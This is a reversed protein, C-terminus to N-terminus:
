WGAPGPLLPTPVEVAGAARLLTLVIGATGIMLGPVEGAGPVGCPWGADARERQELILAAVRRAARAHDAVGLARAAVLLLEVAGGLGHCATCDTTAGTRLATGARVVADRAAQLAATAEALALREETLAFLRLRSLGIGLAGHCWAAMSGPPEGADDFSRLDPWAVRDVDFWGREFELADACAAAARADGTVAAAEALALAIGAAGHGLGLLPPGGETPWASGWAQPVAAAALRAAGAALVPAPPAGGVASATGQLGLLTGAAGAILDLGDDAARARAGIAEALDSAHDRLSADGLTRAATAAAWAIGTAGNFLGLRGAEVLDDAGTLARRAADRATAAFRDAESGAAVRACAALAVAIGATGDYLNDGVDGHGIVPADADIGVVIDAHWTVGTRAPEASAALENATQLAAEVLTMGTGELARPADLGGDVLAAALTALRQDAGMGSWTQAARDIAAALVRCRSQGYSEEEAVDDAWALGPRLLRTLPPVAPDLLPGLTPWRGLLADLVADRATRAHYLVVADVRECADALVPCKLQFPLGELATTVEHVVRPM